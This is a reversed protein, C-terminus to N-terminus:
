PCYKIVKSKYIRNIEIVLSNLHEGQEPSELFIDDRFIRQEELNAASLTFNDIWQHKHKTPKSDAAIRDSCKTDSFWLSSCSVLRPHKTVQLQQSPLNPAVFLTRLGPHTPSSCHQPTDSTDGHGPLQLVPGPHTHLRDSQQLHSEHGMCGGAELWPSRNHHGTRQATSHTPRLYFYIQTPAQARRQQQWGPWRQAPCPPFVGGSMAPATTKRWGCENHDACVHTYPDRVPISTYLIM